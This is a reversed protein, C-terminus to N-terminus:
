KVLRSEPTSKDAIEQTRDAIRATKDAIESM